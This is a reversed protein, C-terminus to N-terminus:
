IRVELPQRTLTSIEFKMTLISFKWLLIKYILKYLTFRTGLFLAALITPREPSALTGSPVDEATAAVDAALPM